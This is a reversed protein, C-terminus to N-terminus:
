TETTGSIDVNVVSATSAKGSLKMSGGLVHGVAVAVRVTKNAPITENYFWNAGAGETGTASVALRWLTVEVNDTSTNTLTLNGIFKKETGTTSVLSVEATSLQTESKFNELTTAM